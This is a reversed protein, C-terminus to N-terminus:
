VVEEFKIKMQGNTEVKLFKSIKTVKEREREREERCDCKRERILTAVATPVFTVTCTM